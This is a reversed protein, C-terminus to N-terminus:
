ESIEGGKLLHLLDEKAVEDNIGSLYINEECDYDYEEEYLSHNKIYKIAKGIRSKLELVEKSTEVQLLEMTRLQQKLERIYQKLEKIHEIDQQWLIKDRESM